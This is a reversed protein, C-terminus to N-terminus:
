WRGNLREVTVREARPKFAIASLFISGNMQQSTMTDPTERQREREKRGADYILFLVSIIRQQLRQFSDPRFLQASGIANRKCQYNSSCNSNIWPSLFPQPVLFIRGLSPRINLTVNGAGPVSAHVPSKIPKASKARSKAESFVLLIMQNIILGASSSWKNNIATWQMTSNLQKLFFKNTNTNTQKSGICCCCCCCRRRRRRRRRRWDILLLTLHLPIMWNGASETAHFMKRVLNRTRNGASYSRQQSVDRRPRESENGKLYCVIIAWVVCTPCTDASEDVQVVVM